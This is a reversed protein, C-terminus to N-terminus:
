VGLTARVATSLPAALVVFAPVDKLRGLGPRLRPVRGLAYAGLVAELTNGASIGLAVGASAGAWLNVLLAGLAIGPWLRQGFLVLVALSLGSPAWVPTAFGGVAAIVLGLKGAVVYGVALLAIAASDRVPPASM